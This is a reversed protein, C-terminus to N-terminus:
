PTSDIGAIDVRPSKNEKWAVDQAEWRQLGTKVDRDTRADFVAWGDPREEFHFPFHEGFSYGRKNLM